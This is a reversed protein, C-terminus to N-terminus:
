MCDRPQITVTVLGDQAAPLPRVFSIVDASLGIGISGGVGDPPAIFAGNIRLESDAEVRESHQRSLVEVSADSRPSIWIWVNGGCRNLVVLDNTEDAPACGPALSAVVLLLTMQVWKVRSGVPM